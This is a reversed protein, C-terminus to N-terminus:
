TVLLESEVLVGLLSDIHTEQVAGDVTPGATERSVTTPREGPQHHEDEPQQHGAGQVGGESGRLGLLGLGVGGLDGLAALEEEDATGEAV